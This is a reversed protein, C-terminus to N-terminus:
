NSGRNHEQRKGGASLLVRLCESDDLEAAVHVLSKGDRSVAMSNVDISERRLYMDLCTHNNDYIMEFLVSHDDHSSATMTAPGQLLKSYCERSELGRFYYFM